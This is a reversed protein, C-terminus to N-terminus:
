IKEGYEIIDKMIVYCPTKLVQEDQVDSYNGHYLTDYFGWLADVGKEVNYDDELGLYTYISSVLMQRQRDNYQFIFDYGNAYLYVEADKEDFPINVEAEIDLEQALTPTTLLLIVFTLLKKKNCLKSPPM